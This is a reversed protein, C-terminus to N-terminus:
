YFNHYYDYIGPINMVYATDYGNLAPFHVDDNYHIIAGDPVNYDVTTILINNPDIAFSINKFSLIFFLILLIKKM